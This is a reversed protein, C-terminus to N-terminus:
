APDLGYRAALVDFPLPFEARLAEESLTAMEEAAGAQMARLQELGDEEQESYLIATKLTTLSEAWRVAADLYLLNAERADFPPSGSNDANTM